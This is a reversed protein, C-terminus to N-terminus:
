FNLLLSHLASIFNYDYLSLHLRSLKILYAANLLRLFSHFNSQSKLYLLQELFSLRSSFSLFYRAMQKPPGTHPHFLPFPNTHTFFRKLFHTSSAFLTHTHTHTYKLLKSTPTQALTVSFPVPASPTFLLFLSSRPSKPCPADKLM